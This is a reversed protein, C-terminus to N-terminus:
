YGHSIDVKVFILDYSLARSPLRMVCNAVINGNVNYGRKVQVVQMGLFDCHNRTALNLSLNIHHEVETLCPVHITYTSDACSVMKWPYDRDCNWKHLKKCLLFKRWDSEDNSLRQYLDYSM